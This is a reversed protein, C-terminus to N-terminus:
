EAKMHRLLFGRDGCRAADNTIDVSNSSTLILEDSEDEPLEVREWLRKHLNQQASALNSTESEPNRWRTGKMRRRMHDNIEAERSYAGAPKYSAPTYSGSIYRKYLAEDNELKDQDQRALEGYMFQSVRRKEDDLQEESDDVLNLYMTSHMDNDEPKPLTVKEPVPTVKELVPTVKELVPKPKPQVRRKNPPVKPVRTRRQPESRELQEIRRQQNMLLQTLAAIDPNQGSTDPINNQLAQEIREIEAEHKQKELLLKKKQLEQEKLKLEQLQLDIEDM